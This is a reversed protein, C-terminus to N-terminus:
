FAPLNFYQSKLLGLQKRADLLEPLDCDAKQWIKLFQGYCDIAKGEWGMQQYIRALHYFSRAYIEGFFLRGTTLTTIKEYLRAAQGPEGKKLFARALDGNLWAHLDRSFEFSHQHCQHSLAKEFFEIAQDYEGKALAARGNIHFYFRVQDQMSSADVSKKLEEALPVVNEYRNLELNALAKLYIALRPHTHYANRGKEHLSIASDALRIAPEAKAMKLCCHAWIINAMVFNDVYAKKFHFAQFEGIMRGCERFRGQLCLLNLLRSGAILYTEPNKETLYERYHAEAREYDNQFGYIDGILIKKWYDQPDLELSRHIEALGLDYKNQVLFVRARFEHFRYNDSYQKQGEDLVALANQYDGRALCSYSLFIHGHSSLCGNKHNAGLREIAQDWREVFQYNIGLQENADCDDPYLTLLKKLADTSKKFTNESEGYFNAEILYRERESVHDLLEMTRSFYRNRNEWDGLYAYAWGLAWHAMAFNPDLDIAKEFARIGDRYHTLNVEHKGEAYYRFAEPSATTIRTIERDIDVTLDPQTINFRTKVQTTLQDVIAFFSEVGQGDAHGSDLFEGSRPDIIRINVRFRDGARSFSGSIVYDVKGREALKEFLDPLIPQDRKQGLDRMIQFLRNEPLIRFFRSQALDTILLDALAIAWSDLSSDGTLNDFYMVALSHREKSAQRLASRTEQEKFWHVGYTVLLLLLLIGSVSLIRRTRPRKFFPGASIDEATFDKMLEPVQSYRKAPNKELCKLIIRSFFSPISPDIVSPNEPKKNIHQTIFGLVTESVFPLRGTVMEFMIVGLSYLDSRGDVPEGKAQEPSIYEPTGVVMDPLSIGEGRISKALGFDMILVQGQHDVMINHPKLDRHVVGKRHAAQLGHCIQRSIDIAKKLNLTGKRQILDKLTEGEVYQMSIFKIGKEEGFDHIRIVNEHSIERALLIEKKFRALAQRDALHQPHIIKLAVEISLERDRAKYVRGMGGRDIEELIKYRKGFSEGPSLRFESSDLLIRPIKETRSKKRDSMLSGCRSCYSSGGPNRFGCAPCKM